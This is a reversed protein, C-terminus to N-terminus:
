TQVHVRLIWTGQGKELVARADDSEPLGMEEPQVHAETKERFESATDGWTEVHSTPGVTGLMQGAGSACVEPPLGLMGETM